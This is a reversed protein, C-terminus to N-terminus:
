FSFVAMWVFLNQLLYQKQLKYEELIKTELEIKEDFTSLFSAIKQQEDSSNPLSIKKGHLFVSNNINM